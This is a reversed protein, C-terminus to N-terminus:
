SPDDSQASVVVEFGKHKQQRTSWPRIWRLVITSLSAAFVIVCVTSAAQCQYSFQYLLPRQDPAPGLSLFYNWQFRKIEFLITAILALSLILYPLARRLGLFMQRYEDALSM